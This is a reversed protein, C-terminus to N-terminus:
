EKTNGGGCRSCSVYGEGVATEISVREVNRKLGSCGLRNHYCEGSETVYFTGAADGSGRVCKECPPYQKAEDESVMYIKLHIHSCMRDEHYVHGYETVYVNGRSESLHNAYDGPVYGTWGRVYVSNKLSIPPVPILGDFLKVQYCVQFQMWEGDVLIESGFFNYGSVSRIGGTELNEMRQLDLWVKAMWGSRVLSESEGAEVALQTATDTLAQQVVEHVRVVSTLSIFAMWVFLVMPFGLAAEVTMAGQLSHRCFARKVRLTYTKKTLNKNVNKKYLAPIAKTNKIQYTEFPM